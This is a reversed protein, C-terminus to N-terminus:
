NPAFFALVVVQGIHDSLQFTGSGNAIIDLEFDPATNGINAGNINGNTECIIESEDEDNSFIRYSGSSNNSNATYTIYITQTQGPSLNDLNTYTFDNNTTYADIINLSQNGNNTVDLSLSYSEVNNVYPFNLEYLDLDIDPGEIEGYEFVQVTAWEGSYIYNDKTAIAMTRRTTNKFGVLNLNSGDWELIRKDFRVVNQILPVKFKLGAETIIDGVPKGFQIVVVHETEHVTYLSGFLLLAVAPVLITLLKNKM